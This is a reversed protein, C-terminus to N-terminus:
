KKLDRMLNLVDQIENCYLSVKSDLGSLLSKPITLSTYGLLEDEIKHAEDYIMHERDIGELVMPMNLITFLFSYNLIVADSSLGINRQNYYDCGNEKYECIDNENGQKKTCPGFNCTLKNEKYYDNTRTIDTPANTSTIFSELRSQSITRNKDILYECKFNNKGKIVPIDPFSQVYQDQLTKTSTVIGTDFQWKAITYAIASKGSGTPACIMFYDYSNYSSEIELLIDRQDKRPTMGPPFHDLIGTM